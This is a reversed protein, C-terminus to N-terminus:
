GGHTESQVLLWPLGGELFLSGLWDRGSPRRRIPRKWYRELGTTVLEIRQPMSFSCELTQEFGRWSWGGVSADYERRYCEAVFLCFGRAWYESQVPHLALSRNVRLLERLKAFEDSSVQYSYLPRGTPGTFFGRILLFEALWARLPNM